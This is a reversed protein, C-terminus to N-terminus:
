TVVFNKPFSRYVPILLARHRSKRKNVMFPIKSGVISRRKFTGLSYLSNIGLQSVTERYNPRFRCHEFVDISDV